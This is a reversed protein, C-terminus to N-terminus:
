FISYRIGVALAEKLQTRRTQDINHVVLVNITANIYDNVKATITNDWRVDWADLTEFASFLNLQSTYLINEMVSLKLSTGTEIGTQVRSTKTVDGTYGFQAFEASFTEKVAVGVRTALMDEYSYTFGAAEILYGPDFLGSTQTRVDKQTVPDKLMKYGPTLQSRLALAVYPDVKWGINYSYISEFFLEDDTKEFDRSGLKTQGYTAKLNNSWLSHEQQNLFQGATLFTWAFTNEGGQSWNNLSVQAVNLGAVLTNKWGYEPPKKETQALAIAPILLLLFLTRNM